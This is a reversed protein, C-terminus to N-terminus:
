RLLMAMMPHHISPRLGSILFFQDTMAEAIQHMTDYLETNSNMHSFPYLSLIGALYACEAPSITGRKKLFQEAWLIDSSSGYVKDAPLLRRRPLCFARPVYNRRKASKRRVKKRGIYWM